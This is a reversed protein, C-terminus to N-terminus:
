SSRGIDLLARTPINKLAAQSELIKSPAAIGGSLIIRIGEEIPIDTYIISAENLLVVEGLYLNNTPIYIAKLCVERGDAQVICEKTLFGFAYAGARPYEVIVFKKFSSNDEPSFADVLQKIATYISKFVPIHLFIREMFGLIKKGFVNTSVIGILFVSAIAAIFGLGAIHRGLLADFFPSLIGDVFKFLNFLVLITFVVPITIILGALFKRKFTIHISEGM